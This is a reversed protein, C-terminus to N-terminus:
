PRVAQMIKAIGDLIAVANTSNSEQSLSGVSASQTKETQSAKFNALTSKSDFFTMCSVKTKITGAPQGEAFRTDLQTTTFRACGPALLLVCLVALRKM